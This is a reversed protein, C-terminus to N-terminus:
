STVVPGSSGVATRSLPAMIVVLGVLNICPIGQSLFMRRVIHGGDEVCGRKLRIAFGVIYGGAVTLDGGGVGM